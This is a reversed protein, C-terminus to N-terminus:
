AADYLLRLPEAGERAVLVVGPERNALKNLHGQKLINEHWLDLSNGGDARARRNAAGRASARRACLPRGASGLLNDGM